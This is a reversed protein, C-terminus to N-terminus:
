VLVQAQQVLQGSTRRKPFGSFSWDEQPPMGQQTRMQHLQCCVIKVRGVVISKASRRFNGVQIFVIKRDEAEQCDYSFHELCTRYYLSDRRGSRKNDVERCVWHLLLPFAIRWFKFKGVSFPEWRSQMSWNTGIEQECLPGCADDAERETREKGCRTTGTDPAKQSQTSLKSGKGCGHTTASGDAPSLAGTWLIWTSSSTIHRSRAASM